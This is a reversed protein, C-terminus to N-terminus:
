QQALAWVPIKPAIKIGNLNNSRAYKQGWPAASLQILSRSCNGHPKKHVQPGWSSVHMIRFM